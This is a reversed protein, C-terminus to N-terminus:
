PVLHCWKFLVLYSQRGSSAELIGCSVQGKTKLLHEAVIWFMIDDSNHVVAAATPWYCGQLWVHLFRPFGCWVQHLKIFGHLQSRVLCCLSGSNLVLIEKSHVNFNNYLLLLGMNAHRLTFPVGIICLVHIFRIGLIFPGLHLSNNVSMALFFNKKLWLCSYNWGPRSGCYSLWCSFSHPSPPDIM